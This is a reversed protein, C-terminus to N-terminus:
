PGQENGIFLDLFGDNDIDTWVATQSAVPNGLGSQTTVDTFTGDCNNKLLSPRMASQWGGRLVLIDICGDNNFDTQILNLGGLQGGLGAAVAKDTFTGNGNNHFFHLPECSDYSSTVIDLLGDNDFDEVIIGGAMSISNLGAAPAVDVFRGISEQSEFASLDSSCVDSSWDCNWITHRRRSSFFFFVNCSTKSFNFEYNYLFAPLM